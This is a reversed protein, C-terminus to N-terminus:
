AQLVLLSLVADYNRLYVSDERITQIRKADTDNLWLNPDVETPGPIVRKGSFLQGAKSDKTPLEAKSLYFPFSNSGRYWTLRNRLSWAIASPVDTLELIRIAAATLSTEFEKAVSSVSTISIDKLDFQTQILKAPMLLEAAFENAEIEPKKLLEGFREVKAPNCINGLHRHYPIIFHGLEHAITFRKRGTEQISKRVAIIGKPSGISCVLAGDFGSSHVERIRLGINACLEKLDPRGHIDFRDRILSALQEAPTM